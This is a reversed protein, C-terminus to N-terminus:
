MIGMPPRSMTSKTPHFIFRPSTISSSVLWWVRRGPRRLAMRKIMLYMAGTAMATMKTLWSTPHAPRHRCFFYKEPSHFKNTDKCRLTRQHPFTCTANRCHKSDTEAVSTRGRLRPSSSPIAHLDRATACSYIVAVKLGAPLALWQPRHAGLLRRAPPSLWSVQGTHDM